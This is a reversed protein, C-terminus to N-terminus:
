SLPLIRLGLCGDFPSMVHLADHNGINLLQLLIHQRSVEAMRFITRKHPLEIHVVEVLLAVLGVVIDEAMAVKSLEIPLSHKIDTSSQVPNPPLSQLFM